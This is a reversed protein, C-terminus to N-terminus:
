KGAKGVKKKINEGKYRIGKGKYPEPPRVARIKAAVLGVEEKSISSVVIEGSKEVKINANMPPDIIVPHSYGVSLVLKRGQM